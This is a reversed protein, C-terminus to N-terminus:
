LGALLKRLEFLLRFVDAGEGAYVSKDLLRAFESGYVCRRGREGEPEKWGSADM